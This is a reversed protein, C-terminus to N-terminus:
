HKITLARQYLFNKNEGIMFINLKKERLRTTKAKINVIWGLDMKTYPSLYFNPSMEWVSICKDSCWKNAFIEGSLLNPAKIVHQICTYLYIEATSISPIYFWLLYSTMLEGRESLKLEWPKEKRNTGLILARDQM